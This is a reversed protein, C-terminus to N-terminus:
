KLYHAITKRVEDITLPYRKTECTVILNIGLIYGNKMYLTLKRMMNDFYAPDDVLGFHEWIFVKGTAPDKITFDPYFPIGDIELLCEYRYQFGQDFLENAILAESKSRVYQGKPAKVILSEPHLKSQEYEEDAWEGGLILSRYASSSDLLARYDVSKRKRIYGEICVLENEKDRLLARFYAKQALKKALEEDKNGLYKREYIGKKNKKQQYWRYRGNKKLAVITGNPARSLKEKLNEIEKELEDKKLIFYDIDM